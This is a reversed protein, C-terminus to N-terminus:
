GHRSQARARSTYSRELEAVEAAVNSQYGALRRAFWVLLLMALGSGLLWAGHAYRAGTPVGRVKLPNSRDYLIAVTEGRQIDPRGLSAASVRARYEAGIESQFTVRVYTEERVALPVNPNVARVRDADACEVRQAVTATWYTDGVVVCAIELATVTADARGDQVVHYGEVALLMAGGAVAVLGANRLWRYLYGILGLHLASADRMLHVMANIRTWSVCILGLAANVLRQRPMRGLRRHYVEAGLGM